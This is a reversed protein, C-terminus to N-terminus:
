YEMRLQLESAGGALSFKADDFKPPGMFGKARNSVVTGEKPIGFLGRDLKGNGNEDHFCAVAYSGIPVPVFRCRSEGNAIACWVRQLAASADTPFGKESRFLLCGGRGRDKRLGLLHVSLLGTATQSAAAYGTGILAVGTALVVVTRRM